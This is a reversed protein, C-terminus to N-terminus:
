NLLDSINIGVQRLLRKNLELTNKQLIVFAREEYSRIENTNVPDFKILDSVRKKFIRIAEDDVLITINSLIPQSKSM